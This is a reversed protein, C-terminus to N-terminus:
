ELVDKGSLLHMHEHDFHANGPANVILQFNPWLGLKEVVESQTKYFGKWVEAGKLSNQKSIHKKPIILLHTPAKPFKNKIVVFTDNEYVMESPEEKNAIKCFLCDEM